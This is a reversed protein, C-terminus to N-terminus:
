EPVVILGPERGAVRVRADLSLLTAREAVRVTVLASALHLADLTRLPERPFPRRAREIVEPDLRLIDWGTAAGNLRVRLEIVAAEALRGSTQTRILARDCEVLTLDSTVVRDAAARIERVTGGAPEALLWALV